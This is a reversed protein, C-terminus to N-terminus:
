SHGDCARQEEGRARYLHEWCRHHGPTTKDGGSPHGRGREVEEGRLVRAGRRACQCLKFLEENQSTFFFLPGYLLRLQERLWEVERARGASWNSYIWNGVAAIFGGGLFSLTYRVTEETPM